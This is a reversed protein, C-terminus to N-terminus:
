CSKRGFHLFFTVFGTPNSYVRDFQVPRRIIPLLVPILPDLIMGALIALFLMAMIRMYQLDGIVFFDIISALMEPVRANALGWGLAFSM